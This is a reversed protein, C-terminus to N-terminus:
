EAIVKTITATKRTGWQQLVRATREVAHTDAERIQRKWGVRVRRSGGPDSRTSILLKRLFLIAQGGEGHLSRWVTHQHM